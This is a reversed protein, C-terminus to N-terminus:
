NCRRVQRTDFSAHYGISCHQCHTDLLNGLEHPDSRPPMCSNGVTHHGTVGGLHRCLIPSLRTDILAGNSVHFLLVTAGLFPCVGSHSSIDLDLHTENSAQEINSFVDSGCRIM